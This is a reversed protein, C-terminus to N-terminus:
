FPCGVLSSTKVSALAKLRGDVRDCSMLALEYLNVAGLLAKRRRLVRMHEPAPSHRVRAFLRVYMRLNRLMGM